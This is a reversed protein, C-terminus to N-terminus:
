VLKAQSSLFKDIKNRVSKYTEVYNGVGNLLLDMEKEAEAKLKKVCEEQNKVAQAGAKERLVVYNKSARYNSSARKVIGARNIDTMMEMELLRAGERVPNSKSADRFKTLKALKKLVQSVHEVSDSGIKVSNILDFVEDTKGKRPVVWLNFGNKYKADSRNIHQSSYKVIGRYKKPMTKKDQRMTLPVVMKDKLNYEYNGNIIEYMPVYLWKFLLYYVNHIDINQKKESKLLGYTPKKLKNLLQKLESPVGDHKDLVDMNLNAIVPEIYEKYVSM